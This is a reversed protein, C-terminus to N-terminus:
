FKNLTYNLKLYFARGPKQVAFNDYVQENLINRADFSVIIKKNPFAYSLGLDQPFQTTTKDIELWSTYFEGVYGFNYYLNLESNKQLIDKFNYQVSGNVTFYPENPLQKNYYLLVNGNNDYKSKYLSNFKSM